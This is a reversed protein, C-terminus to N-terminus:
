KKEYEKRALKILVWFSYLKELEELSAEKTFKANKIYNLFEQEEVIDLSYHHIIADWDSEGPFQTTKTVM